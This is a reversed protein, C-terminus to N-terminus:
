SRIQGSRWFYLWDLSSSHAARSDRAKILWSERTDWGLRVWPKGGPNGQEYLKQALREVALTRKSTEPSDSSKM